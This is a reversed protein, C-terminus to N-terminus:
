TTDKVCFLPIISVLCPDFSESFGFFSSLPMGKGRSHLIQSYQNERKKKKSYQPKFEPGEGQVV